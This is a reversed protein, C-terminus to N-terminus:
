PGMHFSRAGSTASRGDPLLADVRWYYLHGPMLSATRPPTAVTDPTSSQWVVEGAAGTVTVRYSADAGAPRWAFRVQARGVSGGEEPTLSTVVGRSEAGAGRVIPNGPSPARPPRAILVLLAAAAACAAALQWRRIPPRAHLTRVVDAVEARCEDCDALHAEVRERELPTVRNDVYAAVLESEPHASASDDPLVPIM